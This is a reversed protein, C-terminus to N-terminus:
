FLYLIITYTTLQQVVTILIKVKRGINQFRNEEMGTLISDGIIACTGALWRHNDRSSDGSSDSSNVDDKDVLSKLKKTEM